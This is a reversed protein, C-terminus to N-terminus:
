KTGCHLGVFRISGLDGSHRRPNHRPRPLHEARGQGASDAWIPGDALYAVYLRVADEPVAVM